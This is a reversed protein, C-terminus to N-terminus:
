NGSWIYDSMAKQIYRFKQNPCKEFSALSNRVSFFNPHFEQSVVQFERLLFIFPKMVLKGLFSSTTKMPRHQWIIGKSRCLSFHTICSPPPMHRLHSIFLNDPLKDISARSFYCQHVEMMLPRRLSKEFMHETSNDKDSTVNSILHNGSSFFTSPFNQPFFRRRDRFARDGFDQAM